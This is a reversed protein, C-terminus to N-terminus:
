SCHAAPRAHIPPRQESGHAWPPGHARPCCQATMLWWGTQEFPVNNIRLKNTSFTINLYDM